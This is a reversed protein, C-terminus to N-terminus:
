KEETKMPLETYGALIGLDRIQDCVTRAWAVTTHVEVEIWAANECLGIITIHQGIFTELWRPQFGTTLIKFRAAIVPVLAQTPESASQTRM